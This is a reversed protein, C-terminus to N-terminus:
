SLWYGAEVIAESISRYDGGSYILNRSNDYVKLWVEGDIKSITIM